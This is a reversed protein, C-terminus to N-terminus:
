FRENDTTHQSGFRQGAISDVDGEIFITGPLEAMLEVLIQDFAADRADQLRPAYFQFSLADDSRKRYRLELDISIPTTGPYVELGMQLPPIERGPTVTDSLHLRRSGTTPDIRWDAQSYTTISFDRILEMLAATDDVIFSDRFREFCTAMDEQGHWKDLWHVEPNTNLNLDCKHDGWTTPNLVLSFELSNRSYYLASPGEDDSRWLKAWELMAGPTNARTRGRNRLPAPLYREIDVTHIQDATTFAVALKDDVVLFHPPEHVRANFHPIPNPPQEQETM